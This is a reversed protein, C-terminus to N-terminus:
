GPTGPQAAKLLAARDNPLQEAVVLALLRDLAQGIAPGPSLGLDVLDQGNVALQDLRYCANERHLGAVLAEILDVDELAYTLPDQIAKARYFALRDQWFRGQTQYLWAKVALRNAPPPPGAQGLLDQLRRSTKKDLKLRESLQHIRCVGQEPCAAAQTAPEFLLALRLAFDAPSAALSRIITRRRGAVLAALEPLLVAMVPWYSLLVRVAQKGLVLRRFEVLVREAPLRLLAMRHRLVSRATQKELRFGLESALRLARLARLADEQLRQDPCGVSRICRRALDQRGQHPDIVDAASFSQGPEPPQWAMANITFDRRALDAHLSSIFAVSQPRRQDVYPGETRFTTIEVPQGKTLVTVTGHALGTPHVSRDAFLRMVQDPLAQTALDFDHPRSGMLLARVSGGVLYTPYGNQNLRAMLALVHAPLATAM